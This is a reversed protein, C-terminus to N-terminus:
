SKDSNREILKAKLEDFFTSDVLRGPGSNVAEELLKELKPNNELRETISSENMDAEILEAVYDGVSSYHGTAIQAMVFDALHQPLQIQVDM